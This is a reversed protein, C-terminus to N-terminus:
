EPIFRYSYKPNYTKINYLGTDEKDLPISYVVHFTVSEGELLYFSAKASGGMVFMNFQYTCREPSYSDSGANLGIQMYSVMIGNDFTENKVTFRYIVFKYGDEPAVTFTRRYDRCEFGNEYGDVKQYTIDIIPVWVAYLTVYKQSPYFYDGNYYAYRAGTSDNRESWGSFVYGDRVPDDPAIVKCKGGYEFKCTEPVTGEGGNLDYSVFRVARWVAYLTTSETTYLTSGNVYIDYHGPRGKQRWGEFDFGEREPVLNYKVRVNGPRVKQPEPCEGEAGNLDYTITIWEQTAGVQPESSDDTAVIFVGAIGLAVLALLIPITMLPDKVRGTMFIFGSSPTKINEFVPNYIAAWSRKRYATKKKPFLVPNDDSSTTPLRKGHVTGGINM